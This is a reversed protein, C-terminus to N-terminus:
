LYSFWPQFPNINRCNCEELFFFYNNKLALNNLDSDGLGKHRTLDRKKNEGCKNYQEWQSLLKEFKYWFYKLNEMKLYM